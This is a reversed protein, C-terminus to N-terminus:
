QTNLPLQVTFLTGKEPSSEVRVNGGHSEALGKVLTLGLGWGKQGSSQASTTRRFPEFLYRQDEEPIPNGSNYVGIEAMENRRSLSITVTSNKAGYKIANNCLNELIRQVGSPSWYGIIIEPAVIHFHDGHLTSLLSVTESAIENLDCKEVDIPLKEGVKIQNADLLDRIMNDARNMSDVIRGALIQIMDPDRTKRGLLQSSLKAATLPTRLDHTLTAVFQDRLEREQELHHVAIVLDNKIEELARRSLVRDTVDIAHDYVGFPKGELDKIQVYSFDYFHDEIPGDVKTKHRALVEQGIIPEGTELVNKYLDMFKQGKFEPLAELFPRGLLERGPFIEQYKPNVKDFTMDPGSWIAMAAPSKQFITDLKHKESELEKATRELQRKNKVQETVDIGCMIVGDIHGTKNTLPQYIINWIRESPEGTREYDVIASYEKSIFPTGTKMVEYYININSEPISPICERLTKGRVDETVGILKKYLNSGFEFTLEPGRHISIAFPANVLASYLKERETDAIIQAEKRETIDSAVGILRDANGDIDNKVAGRVFIWRTSGDPRIIRYEHYYPTKNKVAERWLRDVEPKDDPHMYQDIASSINTDIEQVGFIRAAIASTKARGTKLDIEWTGIDGLEIALALQAKADEKEQLIQERTKEAKYVRIWAKVTSILVLPDVPSILYADAGGEIGKLHDEGKTFFASTHIVPITSTEPHNKIRKCVEYGSMDPLQIDLLILDPHLQSKVIADEGTEAEIIEYGAQKLHRKLVYRNGEDDDVLLIIESHSSKSNM